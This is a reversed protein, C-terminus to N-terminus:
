GSRLRILPDRGEGPHSFPRGQRGMTEYAALIATQVADGLGVRRAFQAALTSHTTLFDRFLKGSVPIAVVAARRRRLGSSAARSIAFSMIQASNMDVM